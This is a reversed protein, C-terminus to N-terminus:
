IIVNNNNNLLNNNLIITERSKRGQKPSLFNIKKEIWTLVTFFLSFTWHKSPCLKFNEPKTKGTLIQIQCRETLRSPTKVAMCNELIKYQYFFDPLKYFYYCILPSTHTKSFINNHLFASNIRHSKGCMKMESLPVLPCSWGKSSPPNNCSIMSKMSNKAEWIWGLTKRRKCHMQWLQSHPSVLALSFIRFQQEQAGTSKDQSNEAWVSSQKRSVASCMVVTKRWTM